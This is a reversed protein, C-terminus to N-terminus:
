SSSQKVTEFKVVDWSPEIFCGVCQCFHRRAALGDRGSDKSAILVLGRDAVLLRFLGPGSRKGRVRPIVLGQGQGVM